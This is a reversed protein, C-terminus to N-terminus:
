LHKRDYLTNYATAFELLRKKYLGDYAKMSASLVGYADSLKKHQSQLNTYGRIVYLNKYSIM